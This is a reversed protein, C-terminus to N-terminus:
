YLFIGYFKGEFISYQLKFQPFLLALVSGFLYATEYPFQEALIVSLKKAEQLAKM